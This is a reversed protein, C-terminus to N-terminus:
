TRSRGWFDESYLDSAHAEFRGDPSEVYRGGGMPYPLIQVYRYVIGGLALLLIVSVILGRSAISM